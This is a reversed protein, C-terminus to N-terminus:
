GQLQAVFRRSGTCGYGAVAFTGVVRHPSVTLLQAGYFADGFMPDPIRIVRARAGSPPLQIDKSLRVGYARSTEECIVDSVRLPRVKFDGTVRFHVSGDAAAYSGPRPRQAELEKAVLRWRGDLSASDRDDRASLEVRSRGAGDSELRVVVPRARDVTIAGLEAEAPAIDDGSASVTAGDSARVHSTVMVITPTVRGAAVLFRGGAPRAEVGSTRSHPFLPGTVLDTNADNTNLGVQLCTFQTSLEDGSVYPRSVTITNDAGVAPNAEAFSMLPECGNPHQNGLSWNVVISSGAPPPAALTVTGTWEHRVGDGVFTAKTVSRWPEPTTPTGAAHTTATGQVGVVVEDARAAGLPTLVLSITLSVVIGLFKM